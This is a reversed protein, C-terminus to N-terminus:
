VFQFSGDCVDRHERQHDLLASRGDVDADADRQTIRWQGRDSEPFLDRRNRGHAHRFDVFTVDSPLAGTETLAASPAATTTITFAGAAGTTFTATPASSISPASTPVATLLLDTTQYVPSLYTSGNVVGNYKSFQGTASTYTLVTFTSGTAPTFGNAESVNLNGNLAATGSIAVQGYLSTTSGGLVVNLNGPALQTFPGTITLTGSPGVAVAGNNVAGYTGAAVGIAGLSANVTGSNTFVGGQGNVTITGGGDSDITGQNVVAVNASGGLSPDYGVYGSQGQVTIDSGITL